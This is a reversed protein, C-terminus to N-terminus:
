HPKLQKVLEVYEPTPQLSELDPDTELSVRDNYGQAIAQRLTALAESAYHERLAPAQVADACLAYVCGLYYLIGADKAAGKRLPEAVAAAKEHEGCRAQALALEVQKYLNTPDEKALGERLRLCERFQEQSQAAEGCRQAVTGLRYCSSALAQRMETNAPNHQYLKRQLEHATAYHRRVADLSGQGHLHLLMDGLKLHSDV